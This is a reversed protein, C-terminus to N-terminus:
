ARGNEDQYAFPLVVASDFGLAWTEVVREATERDPYTGTLTLPGDPGEIEDAVLGVEYSYELAGALRKPHGFTWVESRDLLHACTIIATGYDASGETPETLFVRHFADMDSVTHDHFIEYGFAFFGNRDLCAAAREAFRADFADDEGGFLCSYGGDPLRVPRFPIEDRSLALAADGLRGNDSVFILSKVPSLTLVLASPTPEM